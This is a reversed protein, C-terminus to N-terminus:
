SAGHARPRDSAVRLAALQPVADLAMRYYNPDREIGVSELGLAEAAACTAGSGVFPDVVVGQGLPLAAAVLVRLLAQPKLSPHPAIRREAQPTRGCSMVDEFPREATRRLAGTQWARLCDRVTQGRLLPKRFIGWPEYCGRALSVTDPFETEAGKPRDGGRLTRVLRIFEGRFELGGAVLAEFVIQSLFANSALFVHAGPRLAPLLVDAFARFFTAVHARERPSLATFRPLPARTCGNLTPPQRWLGGTGATRKALEDPRYERVGFPPDTVVAHLSAAPQAALWAFADAQVLTARGRRATPPTTM